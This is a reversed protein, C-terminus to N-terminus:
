EEERDINGYSEYGDRDESEDAFISNFLAPSFRPKGKFTTPIGNIFDNYGEEYQRKMTIRNEREMRETIIKFSDEYGLDSAILELLRVKDFDTISDIFDGISFIIRLTDENGENTVKAVDKVIPAFESSSDEIITVDCANWLNDFSVLMNNVNKAIEQISM